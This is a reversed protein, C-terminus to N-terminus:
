GHLMLIGHGGSWLNRPLHIPTSKPNYDNVCPFLYNQYMLLEASFTLIAELQQSSGGGGKKKLM